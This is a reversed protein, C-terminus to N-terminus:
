RFRWINRWLQKFKEKLRGQKLTNVGSQSLLNDGQQAYYQRRYEKTKARGKLIDEMTFSRAWRIRSQDIWYHSKCRFSWNGISPYLSITKGDYEFKWETPALPTVVEEGCGCACKHVMTGFTISIYLIGEQIEQSEPIYEVFVPQLDM